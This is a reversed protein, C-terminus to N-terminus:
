TRRKVNQAPKVTKYVRNTLFRIGHDGLVRGVLRDIACGMCQEASDSCTCWYAQRDEKM